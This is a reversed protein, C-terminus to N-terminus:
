SPCSPSGSDGHMGDALENWMVALELRSKVGIKQFIKRLHFAVTHRSLFMQAAAQGNTLGISVLRAVAYETDTLGRIGSSPWFRAQPEPNSKLGRLKSRVRSSDRLSGMEAFSRMALDLNKVAEPNEEDDEALVLGIDEIALARAWPDTHAEAALRIEEVDRALLGAAHATAARLEPIEPNETAVRESLQVGCGALDTQGQGILLRVLWPIAAPEDALLSCVAAESELVKGALSAAQEPGKEAEAIQIVIWMAQGTPLIERGFVADEKLQNAHHISKLLEGCRLATTALIANGLPTWTTQHAENALQMGIKSQSAAGAIDGNALKIKAEVLTAIAASKRHEILAPSARVEDIIQQAAGTRRILTYLLAQQLRAHLACPEGCRDCSTLTAAETYSLGLGLDGSRWSARAQALM